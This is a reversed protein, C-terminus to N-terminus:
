LGRGGAMAAVAAAERGATTSQKGKGKHGGEGGPGGQGQTSAGKSAGQKSAGQKSAGQKRVPDTDARVAPLLSATSKCIVCNDPAELREAPFTGAYWFSVFPSTRAGLAAKTHGHTKAKTGGSAVDERRGKPTWYYYRKRPVIYWPTMGRLSPTYFDCLGPTDKPDTM